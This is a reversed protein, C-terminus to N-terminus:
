KEWIGMLQEKRRRSFYLLLPKSSNNKKTDRKDMLIKEGVM